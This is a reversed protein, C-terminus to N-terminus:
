LVIRYSLSQVGVYCDVLLVFLALTFLSEALVEKLTTTQIHDVFDQLVKADNTSIREKQCEEFPYELEGNNPIKTM